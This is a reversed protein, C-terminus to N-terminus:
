NILNFSFNRFRVIGYIFREEVRCNEKLWTQDFYSVEVISDDMIYYRDSIKNKIGSKYTVLEDPCSCDKNANTALYNHALSDNNAIESHRDPLIINISHGCSMLLVISLMSCIFYIQNLISKPDKM